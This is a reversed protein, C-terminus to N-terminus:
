CRGTRGGAHHPSPQGTSADMSMMILGQTEAIQRFRTMLRNALHAYREHATLWMLQNIEVAMDRLGTRSNLVRRQM